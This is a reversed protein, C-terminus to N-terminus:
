RVTFSTKFFNFSFFFNVNKKCFTILFIFYFNSLIMHYPIITKKKMGIGLIILCYFLFLYDNEYLIRLSINWGFMLFPISVISEM